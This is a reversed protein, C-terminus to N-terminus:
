QDNQLLISFKTGSNVTSSVQIQGNMAEVQTKVLHLGIGTGEVHMHFRKYIGFIKDGFRNLDIGIGNDEFEILIENGKIVTHISIHCPRNDARYKISNAILNAFISTMYSKITYMGAATFETTIVPHAASVERELSILVSEMVDSFNVHEKSKSLEKKISLIENLDKLVMDINNASSEINRIIMANRDDAPNKVNFIRSLGLLNAIPARLNHSVIYSYQQLQANNRILERTMKVQNQEDIIKAIRSSASEFLKRITNVDTELFANEAPSDFHFVAYVKNNVILPVALESGTQRMNIESTNEKSRDKIIIFNMEEASKGIIGSGFPITETLQEKHITPLETAGAHFKLLSNGVLDALYVSTIYTTNISSITDVLHDIVGPITEIKYTNSSYQVLLNEIRENEQVRREAEKRVSIDRIYFSLLKRESTIIQAIFLEIPFERGLSDLGNTEILMNLLLQTHTSTSDGPIHISKPLIIDELKKGMVEAAQWHFIRQAQQNWDVINGQLDTIVVADLASDIILRTREEIEKNKQEIRVRDTIDNLVTLTVLQNKYNFLSDRVAVERIDNDVTTIRINYDIIEDGKLLQESSQIVKEKDEPLVYHLLQFYETENSIGILQRFAENSLIAQQDQIIGVPLPLEQILRRNLKESEELLRENQKRKTINNCVLLLQPIGNESYIVKARIEVDLLNGTKRTIRTEWTFEQDPIEFCDSIKSANEIRHVEPFYHIVSQNLLESESYKLDNTVSANISIISGAKNLIFVMLPNNEFLTRYRHESQIYSKQVKKVDTIDVGYGIMLRFNGNQYYPYFKRIVHKIDGTALQHETEIAMEKRSELVSRFLDRRQDAIDTGIGRFKCYDYDTKGIMWTRLNKDKIGQPNVYMYRHQDDFIAIDAPINDLITEYFSKQTELQHFDDKTATIDKINLCVGIINSSNEEFVPNFLVRFWYPTSNGHQFPTEFESKYGRSICKAINREFAYITKEDLFEKASMQTTLKKQFIELAMEEARQNFTVIQMQEDMLVIIDETSNIAAKIDALNQLIRRQLETIESIDSVYVNAYHDEPQAVLTLSYTLDESMVVNYRILKASDFTSHLHQLFVKDHLQGDTLSLKNLLRESKDNAFLLLGSRNVRFVPNPSEMAFRAMVLASSLDDKLRYKESVDSLHAFFGNIKGNSDILAKGSCQLHIEKDASIYWRITAAFEERNILTNKIKQLLPKCDEPHIRELFQQTNTTTLGILKSAAVNLQVNTLEADMIFFPLVGGSSFLSHAASELLNNLPAAGTGKNM